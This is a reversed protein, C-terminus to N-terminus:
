GNADSILSPLCVLIILMSSTNIYLVGDAIGDLVGALFWEGEQSIFKTDDYAANTRGTKLEDESLAFSNKGNGDRLSVHVHRHWSTYSVQVLPFITVM